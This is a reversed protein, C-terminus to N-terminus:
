ALRLCQARTTELKADIECLQHDIGSLQQLEEKMTQLRGVLEDPEMGHKRRVHTLEHLREEAREISWQGAEDLFCRRLRRGPALQCLQALGITFEVGRGVEKRERRPLFADMTLAGISEIPPESIEELLKALDACQGSSLRREVLEVPM